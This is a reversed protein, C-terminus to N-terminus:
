WERQGKAQWFFGSQINREFLDLIDKGVNMPESAANMGGMDTKVWGPEFAAVIIQREELRAALLKSYMNLAAKSMKYHPHFASFNPDSFSGWNSSINIVRAKDELLPLVNETLDVSGFLNVDFTAKLKEMNVEIFDDSEYLMAANNILGYVTIDDENMIKIFNSVSSSDGLSLQYCVFNKHNLSSEGSTSTGIVRYRGTDLFNQAIAKGIGRSAGTIVINKMAISEKMKSLSTTNPM